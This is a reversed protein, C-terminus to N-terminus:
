RSVSDLDGEASGDGFSSSSAAPEDAVGVIEIWIGHPLCIIKQGPRSISGQKMCDHNKCDSASVRVQGDQVTIENHGLKTEVDYVGNESLPFKRSPENSVHVVVTGPETEEGQMIVVAAIFSVVLAVGLM